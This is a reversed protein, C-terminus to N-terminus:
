LISTNNGDVEISALNTCKYFAGNGISEVSDPITISTLSTCGRFTYSGISTVSDPITIGTLSTCGRFTYSGISTVSDPITIGTLSICNMFASSGISTVAKGDITSPIEVNGGSGNYQTITVTANDSNVSYTYDGYTAASAVIANGLRVGMIETGAPLSFTAALAAAAALATIRKAIRKLKEKKM